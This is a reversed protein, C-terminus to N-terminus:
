ISPRQIGMSPVNPCPPIAGRVEFQDRARQFAAGALATKDRDHLNEALQLDLHQLRLLRAAATRARRNKPKGAHWTHLCSKHIQTHKVGLVHVLFACTDACSVNSAATKHDIYLRLMHPSLWM